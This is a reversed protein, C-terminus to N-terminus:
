SKEFLRRTRAEGAFHSRRLVCAATGRLIRMKGEFELGIGNKFEASCGLYLKPM